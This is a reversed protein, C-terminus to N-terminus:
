AWGEVKEHIEHVAKGILFLGGIILILGRGSVDVRAVTFLPTTLRVVWAISLLLLIRTVFAGLLGLRRAKPRQGEPLKGALISIFIINDVGLVIELVTLTLLGIWANPDTLWDM